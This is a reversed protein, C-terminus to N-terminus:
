EQSLFNIYNVAKAFIDHTHLYKFEAGRGIMKMNEFKKFYDNIIKMSEVNENTLIPYANPIKYTLSEIIKNKEIFKM